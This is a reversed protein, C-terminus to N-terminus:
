VYFDNICLKTDGNYERVSRAVCPWRATRGTCVESRLQASCRLLLLVGALKYVPRHARAAAICRETVILDTDAPGGTPGARGTRDPFITTVNFKADIIKVHLCSPM